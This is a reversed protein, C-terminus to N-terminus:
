VRPPPVDPEAAAAHDRPGGRSMSIGPGIRSHQPQGPSVLVPGPTRRRLVLILRLEDYSAEFTLRSRGSLGGDDDRLLHGIARHARDLLDQRLGLQGAQRALFGAMEEQLRAHGALDCRAHRHIGIRCVLNLAVAVVMGLALGSSALPQLAAPVITMLEPMARYSTAAIIASGVVLARRRDLVRSGILEIGNAVMYIAAFALVGGLVMGPMFELLAALKPMCAMAVLWGALPLAIWRSTAGTAGSIGVASTAANQGTSGLLGACISALGDGFVGRQLNGADPRSWGADNLRQATSVAGITKLTAAFAALAFALLLTPDPSITWALHGLGPLALWPAAALFRWADPTIAGLSAALAVGAVMGILAAYLRFTPGGFVSVAAAVGFTALGIGISTEPGVLGTPHVLQDLGIFGAELGVLLVTVGAVEPPFLVRLRRLASALGIEFCGALITMGFVLPMGGATAALMSAPFYNVSCFGPVLYGSGFRGLPFAQVLSALAIALMSMSVIAALTASDVGAARAVLVPIVLSSAVVAMHQLGLLVLPM